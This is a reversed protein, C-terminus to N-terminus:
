KKSQQQAKPTMDLSNNGIGMNLLKNETNEELPKMTEPRVNLDKIWKLNIITLPTLYPDLKM